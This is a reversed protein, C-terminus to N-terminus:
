GKQQERTIVARRSNKRRKGIEDILVAALLTIGVIFTQWYVNVGLINVANTVTAMLISGLLAGFVTGEGGQLSAGGIIVATLVKMELGTGTTAMAAGLRGAQVLGAFGAFLGTLTYSVLQFRRVNIGSLQASRANAGVFFSQRFYKTRRLAIDGIIVLLIAFIIPIQIGMVMTQGLATFEKPLGAISRGESMAYVLGRSINMTALTAVFPPIGQYAVLFGNLAGVLAGGLIGIIISLVPPVNAKWAMAAIMGSFCVVSGVSMDFGGSILLNTMAVAIIAEVSLSILISMLNSKTLFVPTVLSLVIFATLVVLFLMAERQALAKKLIKM